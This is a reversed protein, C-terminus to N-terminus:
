QVASLKWGKEEAIKKDENNVNGTAYIVGNEVTPLAGFLKNYDTQALVYIKKLNECGTFIGTALKLNPAKLTAEELKKCNTFMYSLDTAITDVIINQCLMECNMFMYKVSDCKRLDLGKVSVMKKCGRFLDNAKQLKPTENVFTVNEVESGSFGGVMSYCNSLDITIDTMSNNKFIYDCYLAGATNINAFLGNNLNNAFFYALSNVGSYDDKRVYNELENQTAYNLLINGLQENTVLTKIKEDFKNVITDSQEITLYKKIEEGFYKLTVYKGFFEFLKGSKVLGESNEFPQADYEHTHKQLNIQLFKNGLEESFNNENIGGKTEEDSHTSNPDFMKAIETLDSLLAEPGYLGTARKTEDAIFSITPIKKDTSFGM